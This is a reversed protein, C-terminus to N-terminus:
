KNRRPSNKEAIILAEQLNYMQQAEYYTVGTAMLGNFAILLLIRGAFPKTIRSWLKAIERWETYYPM